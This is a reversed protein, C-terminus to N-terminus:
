EPPATAKRKRSYAKKSKVIKPRYAPTRLAKAAPNSKRPPRRKRAAM